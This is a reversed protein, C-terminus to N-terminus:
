IFHDAAYQVVEKIEEQTYFGGHETGEGEIRKSGM